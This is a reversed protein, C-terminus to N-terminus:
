DKVFRGELAEDGTQISFIYVGSAFNNIDLSINNMGEIIEVDISSILRGNVDYVAVTSLEARTAQLEINILSVAPVPSIGIVAPKADREVSVVNSKDYQGATSVAVLQYYVTTAQPANVHTYQYASSTNSNGIANVTTLLEFNIGDLSVLLEFYNNENETATEWTIVNNDGADRADFATLEVALKSCPDPSGTATAAECGSDDSAIFEYSSNESFELVINEGESFEGALSSGSNTYVESNDFAPLGGDFSVTLTYVGTENDCFYEVGITIPDLSLFTGAASELDFCDLGAIVTAANMGILVSPDAPVDAANLSLAHPLYEGAPLGAFNGDTNLDLINLDTDTLVYVLASAGDAGDTSITISGGCAFEDFTNLTGADASCEVDCVRTVEISNSLAFCGGLDAANAGVDAGEISDFNLVWILCTGLPSGEFNLAADLEPNIALINLADDTIVIVSTGGMGAEDISLSILDDEDDQTCFTTADPTSITAPTAACETCSTRVVEIANSLAFCGTLDAANAGVDAGEIEDFNLVWVLCTGAPAGEFNLASDLEPNIALIELADDTIVIVTNEGLGADDITVTLLDEIGDDTCFTTTDTTSILAPTTECGNCSTRVVEISNSLAFCGTLDAANAGIDAGDLADFHVTWILCNGEPAGEFDLPITLDPNIAIINLAADTIVFAANAGVGGEVVVDVLDEEGDDTCFETVSETSIVAAAAECGGGGGLSFGVGGDSLTACVDTQTQLDELTTNDTLLGLIDFPGGSVSLGYITYDGEALGTFDFVGTEDSDAINGDADILLYTYSFQGEASGGEMTPAENMGDVAVTTNAPATLVGGIAACADDCPEDTVLYNVQLTTTAFLQCSSGVVAFNGADNEAGVTLTFYLTSSDASYPSVGEATGPDLVLNGDADATVVFLPGATFPSDGMPDMSTVFLLVETEPNAAWEFGLDLTETNWTYFFPGCQPNFDIVAPMEAAPEIFSTCETAGAIRLCYNGVTAEYGDILVYYTVGEETTINVGAEFDTAPDSVYLADGLDENCGVEALAGCDGSFIVMQSDWSAQDLSDTACANSTYVIYTNGDGVFSFWQTNSYVDGAPFLCDAFAPDSDSATAVGGDYPGYVNLGTPGPLEVQTADACEDASDEAFLCGGCDYVATASFNIAAPDLCGAEGGIGFCQTFELDSACEVTGDGAANNQADGGGVYEGNVTLTIGGQPGGDYVWGDGFDDYVNLTYAGADLCVVDTFSQGGPVDTLSGCDLSAVVAGAGDILEWSAESAWQDITYDITVEVQEGCDGAFQCSGDDVTAEANFNIATPDTCGAIDMVGGCLPDSPDLVTFSYNAAVEEYCEASSPGVMPDAGIYAFTAQITYTGPTLALGAGILIDEIDALTIGDEGVGFLPINPGVGAATLDVNVGYGDAAGTAVPDLGPTQMGDFAFLVNAYDAPCAETPGSAVLAGATFPDPCQANLQASGLCFLLTLLMLPIAHILKRM